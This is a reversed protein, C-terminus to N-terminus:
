VSYITPLTLHTYSVSQETNILAEATQNHAKSLLVKLEPPLPHTHSKVLEWTFPEASFRVLCIDLGDLSSGSMVGIVQMALNQIFSCFSDLRSRNCEM